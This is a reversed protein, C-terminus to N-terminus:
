WEPGVTKDTREYVYSFDCGYAPVVYLREPMRNEDIGGGVSTIFPTWPFKDPFLRQLMAAQKDCKERLRLLEKQVDSLTIADIDSAKSWLESLRNLLEQNNDM